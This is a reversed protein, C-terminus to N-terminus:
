FKKIRKSLKKARDIYSQIDKDDGDNDRGTKINKDSYQAKHNILMIKIRNYRSILYRFASNIYRGTKTIIKEKKSETKKIKKVVPKEPERKSIDNNMKESEYRSILDDIFDNSLKKNRNIIEDWNLIVDDEPSKLINYIDSSLGPDIMNILVDSVIKDFAYDESVMGNELLAPYHKALYSIDKLDDEVEWRHSEVFGKGKMWTATGFSNSSFYMTVVSGNKISIKILREIYDEKLFSAFRIVKIGNITEVSDLILKGTFKLKM